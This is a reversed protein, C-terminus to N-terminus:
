GQIIESKEFSIEASLYKLIGWKKNQTPGEERKIKNKNKKIKLKWRKNLKEIKIKIRNKILWKKNENKQKFWM